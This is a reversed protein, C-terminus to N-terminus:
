ELLHTLKCIAELCLRMGEFEVKGVCSCGLVHSLANIQPTNLFVVACVSWNSSKTGKHPYNNATPLGGAFSPGGNDTQFVVLTQKWMNQKKSSRLLDVIDGAAADMYSVMAHYIRRHHLGMALYDDKIEDFADYYEQPVQLPEHVIHFCYCLFLPNDM